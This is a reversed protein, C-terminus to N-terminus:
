FLEKNKQLSNNKVAADQYCKVTKIELYFQIKLTDTDTQTNDVQPPASQGAIDKTNTHQCIFILKTNTHQSIFILFLFLNLQAILWRPPLLPLLWM